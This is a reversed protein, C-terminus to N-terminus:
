QFGTAEGTVTITWSQGGASVNFTQSKTASPTGSVSFTISSASSGSAVNATGAIGSTKTWTWVVPSSATITYSATGIEDDSYAGGMPQFAASGSLGYFHSFSLAGSSPAGGKGYFDRPWVSSHPLGFEDCIQNWTIPGSAPLTM